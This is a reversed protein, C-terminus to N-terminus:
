SSYLFFLESLKTQNGTLRQLSSDELKMNGNQSLDLSVLKSLYSIEYPVEGTLNCTTLSLYTTNAFWGFMLSLKSGSFDNYSLNLRKLHQLPFLSSNSHITGQLQSCSVDIGIVNFKISICHIKPIFLICIFVVM